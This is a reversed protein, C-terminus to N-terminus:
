TEELLPQPTWFPTWVAGPTQFFSSGIFDTIGPPVSCIHSTSTASTRYFSQPTLTGYFYRTDELKRDNRRPSFPLRLLASQSVNCLLLLRPVGGCWVFTENSDSVLIYNFRTSVPNTPIRSIKTLNGEQLRRWRDGTAM